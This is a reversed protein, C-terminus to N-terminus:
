AFFNIEIKLDKKDFEKLLNPKFYSYLNFTSVKEELADKDEILKLTGNGIFEIKKITETYSIKEIDILNITFIRKKKDILDVYTYIIKENDIVFTEQRRTVIDKGSKLVLYLRLIAYPVYLVLYIVISLTALTLIRGSTTIAGSNSYFLSFTPRNLVYFISFLSLYIAFVFLFMDIRRLLSWEHRQYKNHQIKNKINEDVKFEM